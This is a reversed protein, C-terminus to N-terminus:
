LITIMGKNQLNRLQQEDVYERLISAHKHPYLNIQQEHRYFDGGKKRTKIPILQNSKNYISITDGSSM